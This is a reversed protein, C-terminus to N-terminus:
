RRIPVASAATSPPIAPSCQLGPESIADDTKHPVFRRLSRNQQRVPTARKVSPSRATVQSVTLWPNLSGLISRALIGLIRQGLSLNLWPYTGRPIHDIADPPLLAFALPPPFERENASSAIM